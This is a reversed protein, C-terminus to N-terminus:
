DFISKVWSIIRDDGDIVFEQGRGVSHLRCHNEELEWVPKLKPTLLSEHHSMKTGESLHFYKPLKWISRNTQTLDTLVLADKFKFVGHGKCDSKISLSKSAIYATNNKRNRYYYHPHECKWDPYEGTNSINEIEGVQLYGWIIHKDTGPIFKFQNKVEVAERFWGFFLFLDGVKVGQNKLHAQSNSSQGFIGNWNDDRHALVSSNIDPDLHVYKNDFGKIDLQKMIDLYSHQEDFYLDSYTKGTNITNKNNEEPIPLSLLRGEDKFYPSPSRGAVSDFGKRSLIVKIEM